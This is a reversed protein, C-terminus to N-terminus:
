GSGAPGSEASDSPWTYGPQKYLTARKAEIDPRHVQETWDAPAVEEIAISVSAAGVGAYKMVATTIADALQAKARESPGPWMKVIVHPM